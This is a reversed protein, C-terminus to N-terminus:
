YIVIKKSIIKFNDKNLVSLIYIGKSLFSTSITLKNESINNKNYCLKGQMDFISINTNRNSSCLIEIKDKQIFVSYNEDTIPKVGMYKSQWGCPCKSFDWLNVNMNNKYFTTQNIFCNLGIHSSYEMVPLCPWNIPGVSEIFTLYDVAPLHDNTLLRVHKLGYEYYISDVFYNSFFDYNSHFDEGIQLNMDSMLYEEGWSSNYLYLKSADESERIFFEDLLYYLNEQPEHNIWDINNEEVKGGFSFDCYLKKYLIDNLLVDGFAVIEVSMIQPASTPWGLFSWRVAEGDLCPKYPQALSSITICLILILLIKKM